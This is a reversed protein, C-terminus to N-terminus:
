RQRAAAVFGGMKADGRLFLMLFHLDASAVLM